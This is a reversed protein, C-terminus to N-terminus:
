VSVVSVGNDVILDLGHVASSEDSALFVAPGALDEPQMFGTKTPTNQKIKESVVPDNVFTANGPTDTSGPTLLNVNIHYQAVSLSSSENNM